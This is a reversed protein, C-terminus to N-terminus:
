AAQDDKPEGLVLSELRELRSKFEKNEERLKKNERKLESDAKKAAEEAEKDEARLHSYSDLMAVLEEKSAAKRGSAHCMLPDVVAQPVHEREIKLKKFFKPDHLGMENKVPFTFKQLFLEAQDDDMEIFGGAPIHIDQGSFKENYPHINLNHVKVLM